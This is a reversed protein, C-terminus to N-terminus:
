KLVKLTLRAIRETLQERQEEIFPHLHISANANAISYLNETYIHCLEHVYSAKLEDESLTYARNWINIKARLYPIQTCIDMACNENEHDGDMYVNSIEWDQLKLIQIAKQALPEIISKAKKHDM